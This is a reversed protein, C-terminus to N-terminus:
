QASGFVHQWPRILEATDAEPIDNACSQALAAGLTVQGVRYTDQFEHLCGESAIAADRSLRVAAAVTRKPAIAIARHLVASYSAMDVSHTVSELRSLDIVGAAALQDRMQHVADRRGLRLNLGSVVAGQRNM